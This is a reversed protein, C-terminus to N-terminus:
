HSAPGRDTETLSVAAGDGDDEGTDPQGDRLLMTLLYIAGIAMATVLTVILPILTQNDM